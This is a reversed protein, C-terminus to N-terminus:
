MDAPGDLRISVNFQDVAVIANLMAAEDALITFTASSGEVIVEGSTLNAGLDSTDIREIYVYHIDTEFAANVPISSLGPASSETAHASSISVATQEESGLRISEADYLTGDEDIARIDVLTESFNSSIGVSITDGSEIPDSMSLVDGGFYRSDAPRVFLHEIAEESENTLQLSLNPTQAIATPITLLVLLLPFLVRSVKYTTHTM